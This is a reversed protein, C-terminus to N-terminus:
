KQMFEMLGDTMKEFVESRTGAGNVTVLLGMAAYEEIVPITKKRFEAVRKRFIDQTADDARIEVEAGTAGGPVGERAGAHAAATWRAAVEKDTLELYVVAKIPHGAGEAVSMVQGEEGHWRGISSLVLPKEWLERKEFYPLVLKYFVDTPALDGGGTLDQGTEHEMKRIIAGSSLFEAGLAQALRMGQTDKGSMPLGFINISGTGLWEKLSKIKEEM